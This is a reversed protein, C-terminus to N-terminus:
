ARKLADNLDYGVAKARLIRVERGAGIWRAEVERAAREGTGNADHDAILTLCEIGVLLPFKALTMASGTAWIPRLGLAAAALCTEKGEGLFLGHLADEDRSLRIVGGGGGLTKAKCVKKGDPGIYTRSIAGTPQATSPDTMIGIICGLKQGHLPHDPEGFYVSPNWGIADARELLDSIAGVDIKREDRLYSEGLSGLTPTLGSVIRRISAAPNYDHRKALTSPTPRDGMLEAAEAFTSGTIFRLLDIADGGVGCGRCNFLRKRPNVAFRDRRGCRPCPGVWEAGSKKLRAGLREALALIEAHCALGDRQLDTV